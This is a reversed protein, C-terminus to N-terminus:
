ARRRIRGPSRCRTDSVDHGDEGVDESISFHTPVQTEKVLSRRKRPYRHPSLPMQAKVSSLPIERDGHKERDSTLNNASRIWLLKWWRPTPSSSSRSWRWTHRKRNMESLLAENEAKLADLAELNLLTKLDYVERKLRRLQMQEDLVENVTTSTKTAKARAAFQLTSKNGRQVQRQDYHLLHHDHAHQRGALETAPM